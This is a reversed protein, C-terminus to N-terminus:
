GGPKEADPANSGLLMQTLLAARQPEMLSFIKATQEKELLTLISIVTSDDLDNMIEVVAEPKMESYYSAMQRSNIIFNEKETKYARLATLEQQIEEIQKLLNTKEGELAVLRAEMTGLAAKLERNEKEIPSEAPINYGADPPQKMFIAKYSLNATVDKISIVGILNAAWLLGGLAAALCLVIFVISRGNIKM